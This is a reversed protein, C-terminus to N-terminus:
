AFRNRSNSSILCAKTVQSSNRMVDVSFFQYLGFRLFLGDFNLHMALLSRGVPQNTPQYINFKFTTSKNHACRLHGFLIYSSSLFFGNVLFISDFSHSRTVYSKSLIKAQYNSFIRKFLQLRNVSAATSISVLASAQIAGCM